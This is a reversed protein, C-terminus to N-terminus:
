GGIGGAFGWGGALASAATCAMGLQVGGTPCAGLRVGDGVRASTARVAAARVERGSPGGSDVGGGQALPPLLARSGSAIRPPTASRPMPNKAPRAETSTGGFSLAASVVVGAAGVTVAPATVSGVGVTAGVGDDCSVDSGVADADVEDFFFFFFFPPEPALPSPGSLSAATASAAGSCTSFAARVSFASLESGLRSFASFASFGAFPPPGNSLLAALAARAEATADAALPQLCGPSGLPWATTDTVNMGEPLAVVLLIEPGGNWPVGVPLQM